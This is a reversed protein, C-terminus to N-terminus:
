EEWIYSDGCDQDEYRSWSGETSYTFEYVMKTGDETDASFPQPMGDKFEHVTINYLRPAEGNRSSYSKIETHGQAKGGSFSMVGEDTYYYQDFSGEEYESYDDEHYLITGEPMGQSWNGSFQYNRYLKGKYKVDNQKRTTDSCRGYWAECEGNWKGDSYPGFMLGKTGFVNQVGVAMMEGNEGTPYGFRLSSADKWDDVHKADFLLKEAEEKNGAKLEDCAQILTAVAYEQPQGAVAEKVSTKAEETDVKAAAWLFDGLMIDDSKESQYLEKAYEYGKQIDQMQNLSESFLDRIQVNRIYKKENEVVELDLKVAQYYSEAALDYDKLQRAAEGQYIFATIEEPYLSTAKLLTDKAASWNGSGIQAKALGLLAMYEPQDGQAKSSFLSIAKDWNGADLEKYAEYCDNKLVADSSFSNGCGTLAFTLAAALFICKRFNRNIGLKKM